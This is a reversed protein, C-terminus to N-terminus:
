PVVLLGVQGGFDDSVRPLNPPAIWEGGNVRLAVRHPGPPIARQLTWAGNPEQTLAVPEWDTFDAMLEVSMASRVRISVLRISDSGVRVALSGGDDDRVVRQIRDITTASASPLGLRLSVAVYRVSPVARAVDELARGAAFVIAARPALWVAASASGWSLPASPRADRLRMGSGVLLEVPGTRHKWYAMVDGYRQVKGGDPSVGADTFAIAGSLEDRGFGDPRVFGGGHTSLVRRSFGGRTVQGGTAGAFLGGLSWALHERALLQWGFAPGANSLGFATATAGLEWRARQDPPAYRSAYLVAQGTYRDDATRAAIGNGSLESESTAYRFQGAATLVSTAMLGPQRLLAGGIDVSGEAVARAAQGRARPGIVLLLLGTVCLRHV